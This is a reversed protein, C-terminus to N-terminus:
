TKARKPIARWDKVVISEGVEAVNAVLPLIDYSFLISDKLKDFLDKGHVELTLTSMSSHLITKEGVKMSGYNQASFEPPLKGERFLM